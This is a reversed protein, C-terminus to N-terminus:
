AGAGTSAGVAEMLQKGVYETFAPPIAQSLEAITMWDIGMVERAETVGSPKQGNRKFKGGYGTGTVSLVRKQSGHRCPGPSLMLHSSEFLRHRRVEMGFMSGCLLMSFSLPSGVVNEIVWPKGAALLLARTPGVLDPHGAAAAGSAASYAQCPPSAHIAAFDSLRYRKGDPMSPGISWGAVLQRLVDLADDVILPYPFRPQHKIDVGVVDFGARHYGVAAGGAKCFLDLLRPAM